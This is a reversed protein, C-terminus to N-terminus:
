NLINFKEILYSFSFLLIVLALGSVGFAVIGFLIVRRYTTNYLRKFMVTLIIIQMLLIIGGLSLARTTPSM